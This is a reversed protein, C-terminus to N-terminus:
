FFGRYFVLAAGRRAELVASLSVTGGSASPLAFDPATASESLGREASPADASEGGCAALGGFAAAAAAVVAIIAILLTKM